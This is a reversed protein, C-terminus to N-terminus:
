IVGHVADLLEQAKAPQGFTASYTTLEGETEAFVLKVMKDGMMSYMGKNKMVNANVLITGSPDQRMLIRVSGSEKNKLLRLIGIGKNEWPQAEGRVFKRCRSKQEFLIDESREEEATLSTLDRQEEAPAADDENDTGTATSGEDATTAGPTTARSQNQSGFVSSTGTSPGGFQFGMSNGAKETSPASLGAFLSPASNPAPEKAGFLNAFPRNETSAASPTSSSGSFSFTPPASTQGTFSFKPPSATSESSPAIPKFNFLPKAPSGTPTTSNDQTANGFKIPTGAKYTQNGAPSTSQDFGFINTSPASRQEDNLSGNSDAGVRGFLGGSKAPTAPLPEGTDEDASEDSEGVDKQSAPSAAEQGNTASQQSLHGFINTTSPQSNGFVSGASANSRAGNAHFISPQSSEAAVPELRTEDPDVFVFKGGVNKLVKKGQEALKQRKAEQKERDQREWEQEDDEDSDFDEAKRKELEKKAQKDAQAGFAAMFNPTGSGGGFKPLGSSPAAGATPTSPAKPMQFGAFASKAPAASQNSSASFMTSSQTPAPSAAANTNQSKDPAELINNFLSATASLPKQPSSLQFGSSSGTAKSPSPVPRKEPPAERDVTEDAKRKHAVAGGFANGSAPTGHGQVSKTYAAKIKVIEEQYFLIPRSWEEDRDCGALHQLLGRNLDHLKQRKSRDNSMIFTSADSAKPDSQGYQLKAPSSMSSNPIQAPVAAPQQASFSFVNATQPKETSPTQASPTAKTFNIAKPTAAQSKTSLGQSDTQKAASSFINAAPNQAATTPTFHFASQANSAPAPATSSNFMSPTADPTAPATSTGNVQSASMRQLAAFPNSKAPKEAETTSKQAPTASTFGGFPSSPAPSATTDPAQPTNEGATAQVTQSAPESTKFQFSSNTPAASSFSFGNNAQQASQAPATQQFSFNSSPKSAGFASGTSQMASSQKDGHEPAMDHDTTGNTGDTAPQTETPKAGFSFLSSQFPQDGFNSTSQSASSQFPNAANTGQFPNTPSQFPNSAAPPFSNATPGSGFTFGSTAPVSSGFTFSSAGNQTSQPQGFSFNNESQATQQGFSFGTSQNQSPAPAPQSQGFGGFSPPPNAKTPSSSRSNRPKMSAIRDFSTMDTDSAAFFSCPCDDFSTMDTDSAAFFSCPCGDFSTM